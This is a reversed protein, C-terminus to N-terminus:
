NSVKTIIFKVNGSVSNPLGGNTGAHPRIVQGASLYVTAGVHGFDTSVNMSLQVRDAATITQIDTTLETSSISFGFFATTSTSGDTYGMAYVGDENITLSAGLTASDAYTIASGIAKPNNTFRRIKTNTSGMGNGTNLWIESRPNQSGVALANESVTIDFFIASSQLTGSGDFWFGPSTFTSDTPAVVTAIGTTPDYHRAYGLASTSAYQSPSADVAGTRGTTSFFDFRVNKNKGVFIEYKTPSNNPNVTAWATQRYIKIGDAVSPAATPDGSTETYTSASVNRLYSRYEGLNTPASGTVRAGNALYNSIKFTSSQAMTVNTSRGVIPVRATFSYTISNGLSWGNGVILPDISAQSVVMALNTSNYVKMYGHASGEPGYSSLASASGVNGREKTTSVDAKATDITFGSPLPFLYTGSGATGATSTSLSYNITMWEGAMSYYASNVTVTGLTPATTTAGITLTYATADQGSMGYAAVGPSVSFNDAQLTVATTATSAFYIGLRYQQNAPTAARATTPFTATVIGNALVDNNYPTILLSNTVDYVFVKVDGQVLSGSVVNLAFTITANAGQYAPQVNFVVSCGEGQKNAATKVISLSASGDLPNSTSRTCTVAPAGGTLDVPLSAAADAFALWNGVSIEFDRDDTNDPSWASTQGIFNVGSGSGAGIKSEIGSSNLNYLSGNAKTYIKNLGASPNSPTAIQTVTLANGITKNTLIDTTDKGVLTDTANPVTATGSTNLTLTGAGSVLTAATAGSLTNNSNGLNKNTLTSTKAEQVIPDASSTYGEYKDTAVNYAIEGKESVVSGAQPDVVVSKKIKFSNTSM